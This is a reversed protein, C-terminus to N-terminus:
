DPQGPLFPGNLIAVAEWDPGSSEFLTRRALQGQEGYIAIVSFNEGSFVPFIGRVSRLVLPNKSARGFYPIVAAAAMALFVLFLLPEIM